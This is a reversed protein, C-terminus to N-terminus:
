YDFKKKSQINKMTEEHQKTKKKWNLDDELTFKDSMSLNISQIKNTKQKYITNINILELKLWIHLEEIRVAQKLMMM